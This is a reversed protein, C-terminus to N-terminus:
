LRGSGSHLGHSRAGSGSLWIRGAEGSNIKRAGRGFLSGSHDPDAFIKARFGLVDPNRSVEKSARM